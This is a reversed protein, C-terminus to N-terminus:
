LIIGTQPKSCVGGEREMGAIHPGGLSGTKCLKEAYQRRTGARRFRTIQDLALLNADNQCRGGLTTHDAARSMAQNYFRM